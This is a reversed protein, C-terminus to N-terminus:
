FHTVKKRLSSQLLFRREDDDDVDYKRQVVVGAESNVEQKRKAKCARTGKVREPWLAGVRRQKPLPHLLGEYLAVCLPAERSCHIM